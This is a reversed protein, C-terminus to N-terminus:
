TRSRASSFGRDAAMFRSLMPAILREPPLPEGLGTESAHLRAYALLDRHLQAPLDITLKVPKDDPIPGLRLTPM